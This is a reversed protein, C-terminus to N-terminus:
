NKKSNLYTFIGLQILLFSLIYLPWVISIFDYATLSDTTFPAVWEANMLVSTYRLGGIISAFSWLCVGPWLLPYQYVGHDLAGDILLAVMLLRFIFVATSLTVDSTGLVLLVILLFLGLLVIRSSVPYPKQPFEIRFAVIFFLMFGLLGLESITFLGNQMDPVLSYLYYFTNALAYEGFAFAALLVIIRESWTRYAYLCSIMCILAVGVELINDYYQYDGLPIFFILACVPATLLVMGWLLLMVRHPVTGDKMDEGTGTYMERSYGRKEPIYTCTIIQM